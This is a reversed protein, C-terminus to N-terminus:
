DGYIADARDFIESKEPYAKSILNWTLFADFYHEVKVKRRRSCFWKHSSIGLFITQLGPMLNRILARDSKINEIDHDKDFGQQAKAEVIVLQKKFFLALDFKRHISASALAAIKKGRLEVYKKLDRYFAVEFGTDVHKRPDLPPSENEQASNGILNCENLSTIFKRKDKRICEYPHACFHREERTVHRWQNVDLWLERLEVTSEKSM